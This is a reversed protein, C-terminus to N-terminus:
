ALVFNSQLAKCKKHENQRPTMQRSDLTRLAPNNQQVNYLLTATANNSALFVNELLLWNTRPLNKSFQLLHHDLLISVCLGLHPPIHLISLISDLLHIQTLSSFSLKFPVSNLPTTPLSPMNFVSFLLFSFSSFKSCINTSLFPNPRLSSFKHVTQLSNQKILKKMLTNLCIM